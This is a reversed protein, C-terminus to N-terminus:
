TLLNTYNQTLLVYSSITFVYGCLMLSSRDKSQKCNRCFGLKPMTRRAQAYLDKLCSCSNKKSLLKLLGRRINNCDAQHHNNFITVKQSTIPQCLTTHLNDGGDYSDLIIITSSLPIIGNTLDSKYQVEHMVHNTVITALIDSVASRHEDDKWVESCAKFSNMLDDVLPRQHDPEGEEKSLLSHLLKCVPHDDAPLKIDYGHNCKVKDNKQSWEFWDEWSQDLSSLRSEIKRAKRERGKNRKRSPM